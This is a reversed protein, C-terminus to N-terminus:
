SNPVVNFPLVAYAHADASTAEYGIMINISFNSGQWEGKLVELTIEQGRFTNNFLKERNVVQADLTWMKPVLVRVQGSETSLIVMGRLEAVVIGSVETANAHAVFRRFADLKLWPHLKQLQDLKRNDTLETAMSASGSPSCAYVIAFAGVALLLVTAVVAIKLSRRM